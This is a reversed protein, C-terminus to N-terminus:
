VYFNAQGANRCFVSDKNDIIQVYFNAQGPMGVSDKNDTIWVYFNM